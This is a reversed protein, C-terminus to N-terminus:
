WRVHPDGHAPADHRGRRGHLFCRTGLSGRGHCRKSEGSTPLCVNNFTPSYPARRTVTNTITIATTSLTQATSTIDLLVAFGLAIDLPERDGARYRYRQSPHICTLV